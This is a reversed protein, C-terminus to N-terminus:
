NPSLAIAFLCNFVLIAVQITNKPVKAFGIWLSCLRVGFICLRVGDVLTHKIIPNLSCM